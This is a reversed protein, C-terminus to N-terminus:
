KPIDMRPGPFLQGRIGVEDNEVAYILLHMISNRYRVTHIRIRPQREAIEKLLYASLRGPSLIALNTERSNDFSLRETEDTAPISSGGISDIPGVM